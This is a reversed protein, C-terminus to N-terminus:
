VLIWKLREDRQTQRGWCHMSPRNNQTEENKASEYKEHVSYSELTPPDTELKRGKGIRLFSVDLVLYIFGFFHPVTKEAAWWLARACKIHWHSESANATIDIAAVSFWSGLSRVASALWLQGDASHLLLSSGFCSISWCNEMRAFSHGCWCFQLIFKFGRKLTYCM